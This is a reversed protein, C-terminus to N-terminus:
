GSENEAQKYGLSAAGLQREYESVEWRFCMRM